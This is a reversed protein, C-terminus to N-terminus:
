EVVAECTASRGDSATWTASRAMSTGRRVGWVVVYTESSGFGVVDAMDGRTCERMIVDRDWVIGGDHRRSRLTVGGVDAVESMM